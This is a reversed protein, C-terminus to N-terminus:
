PANSNDSAETYPVRTRVYALSLELAGQFRGGEKMGKVLKFCADVEKNM